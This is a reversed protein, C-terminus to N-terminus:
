EDPRSMWLTTHLESREEQPRGHSFYYMAVSNRTVEEPCQLPDPIGHYSIDSTSFIVCTNAHPAIRQVCGAMDQPWLELFGGWQEDWNENLFLLLNLRRDLDFTPHKNFDAHIRLIAGRLYLHIGGGIMHPDSILGGIGTLKELCLLFRGSNLEYQLNRLSLGLNTEESYGLKGCQAIRGDQDFADNERWDDLEGPAPFDKIVRRLSQEPLFNEIVVHPFPSASQYEACRATAEAELKEFNIITEDSVPRVM